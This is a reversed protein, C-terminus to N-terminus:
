ATESFLRASQKIQRFVLQSVPHYHSVDRFLIRLHYQKKDQTFLWKAQFISRSLRTIHAKDVLKLVGWVGQKEIQM